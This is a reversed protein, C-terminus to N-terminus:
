SPRRESDQWFPTGIVPTSPIAMERPPMLGAEFGIRGCSVARCFAEAMRIPNKALAVATNLLVADMGLEMAKVADSPKGIGADVILPVEPFRSRLALLSEPTRIGKGTGIPSAWPMLVRCGVQLLHEAVVTDDTTYPFVQFGEESLIKAAEVTAFPDPALLDEDGTIELKIWTTGFLERALHATTIAQKVTRSGATNPLVRVGSNQILKWFNEGSRSEPSQRRLSVTVVEAQSALISDLLIAPSPYRATGLFLRSKLDTGYIEWM